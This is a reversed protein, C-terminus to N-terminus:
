RLSVVPFFLGREEARWWGKEGFATFHYLFVRARVYKPRTGAFPNYQLLGTVAPEGQMLRIMFNTFWPSQQYSGLAAFWMQWDLRPQFPEIVPPARLVNGPKYRFEYAKWNVGDASGEVLIEARETTMNAFLGYSNVLHFPDVAELVQRGGAPLPMRFLMLLQVISVMAIFAAVAASVARHARPTPTERHRPEIVLWVCLAIALFNFFTYNGTSLILLQLATTIWAGAVRVRRPGFFSFPVVLEVFLAVATSAKQAAMPLQNVFWALPTPLPQTEYHFHMATLNHWTPDGSTLKVVGSFFMLRFVLWRFLWVRVPSDDAFIALFGAEILLVDWQFSLFDQGINCVSLWLVLCVALSARRWPLFMAAIAFLAGAIWVAHMAADSSNLWFVTPVQWFASTGIQERVSALYTGYPLIGHSGILGAAQVGFSTFATLYIFGLFRLFDAPTAAEARIRM